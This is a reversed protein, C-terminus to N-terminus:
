IIGIVSIFCLGTAVEGSEALVLVEDSHCHCEQRRVLKCFM